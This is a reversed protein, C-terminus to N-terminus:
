FFGGDPGNNEYKGTSPLGGDLDQSLPIGSQPATYNLPSNNYVSLLSDPQLTSEAGLNFSTGQQGNLDYIGGNPGGSHGIEGGHNYQYQNELLNVHLDEKGIKKGEESGFQTPSSSEMNGVPANPGQVLDYLSTKDKLGM